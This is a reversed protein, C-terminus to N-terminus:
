RLRTRFLVSLNNALMETVEILDLGNEDAVSVVADLDRVGM